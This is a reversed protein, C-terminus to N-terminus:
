SKLILKITRPLIPESFQKAKELIACREDENM